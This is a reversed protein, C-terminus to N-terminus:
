RIQYFKLHVFGELENFYLFLFHQLLFKMMNAIKLSNLVCALSINRLKKIEKHLCTEISVLKYFYKKLDM